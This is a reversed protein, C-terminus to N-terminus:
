GRRRTKTSLTTKKTLTGRGKGQATNTAALIGPAFLDPSITSDVFVNKKYIAHYRQTVGLTVGYNTRKVSREDSTSGLQALNSCGVPLHQCPKQVEKVWSFM